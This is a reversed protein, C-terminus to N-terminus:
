LCVPKLTAIQEISPLDKSHNALQATDHFHPQVDHHVQRPLCARTYHPGSHRQHLRNTSYTHTYVRGQQSLPGLLPLPFLVMNTVSKVELFYCGKHLWDDLYPFIIIGRQHLLIAVALLIKPFLRPATLLSVSLVHYQYYDKSIVFQLFCRLSLHMHFYSGQLDFSILRNGPHLSLIIVALTAM